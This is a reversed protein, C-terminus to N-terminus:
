SKDSYKENLHKVASKTIVIQTSYYLDRSSLIDSNYYDVWPITGEVGIFDGIDVYKKFFKFKEKGLLKEQLAIQMTSSFDKLTAFILRGFLRVAMIRGAISVDKTGIPLMKADTMSHTRKYREKYPIKGMERLESLKNIRIEREEIGM